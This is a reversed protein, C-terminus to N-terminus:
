FLLLEKYCDCCNPNDQLKNFNKNAELGVIRRPISCASMSCAARNVANVCNLTLMLTVKLKSIGALVPKSDTIIAVEQDNLGRSTIINYTAIVIYFPMSILKLSHQM